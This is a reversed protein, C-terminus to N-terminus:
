GRAGLGPHADLWAFIRETTWDPFDFMPTHGVGAGEVYTWAPYREALARAARVNVLKDQDGHLLLVPSTIRGIVSHFRKRHALMTIMSKGAEEFSARAERVERLRWESLDVHRDVLAPDVVDYRSTVVKITREVEQRVTSAAMRKATIRSLGPLTTMAFDRLIESHPYGRFVLPIAPDILVAGAVMETDRAALQATLLGGMSNGAVIAPRGVTEAVFGQLLKLNGPLSANLPPVQTLGFGGLDLRVVPGRAALQTAVDGWNDLSGGLGHVLVFAPGDAPGEHKEYRVQTDGIRVFTPDPIVCGM